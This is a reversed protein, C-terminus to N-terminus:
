RSAPDFDPEIQRRLNLVRRHRWADIAWLLFAVTASLHRASLMLLFLYVMWGFLKPPGPNRRLFRFVSTCVALTAFAYGWRTLGTAYELGFGSALLLPIWAFRLLPMRVNAYEPDCQWALYRPVGASALLWVVGVGLTITPPWPVLEPSQLVLFLLSFAIGVIACRALFLGARPWRLSRPNAATDWFALQDERIPSPLDRRGGDLADIFAAMDKPGYPALGHRLVTRWSVPQSLTDLWERAKTPDPDNYINRSFVSLAQENGPLLRWTLDLRSRLRELEWADVTSDVGGLHFFDAVADFSAVTMPPTDEELAAMVRAGLQVKTELSWLDPQADLWARLVRAEDTRVHELLGAHFSEWDFEPIPSPPGVIDSNAIPELPAHTAPALTTPAAEDDTLFARFGCESLAQQYREHLEQFAAPDEDPRTEKLRRAYARKVERESADTSLGFWSLADM